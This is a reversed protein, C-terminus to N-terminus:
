DPNLHYSIKFNLLPNENRSAVSFGRKKHNSKTLKPM